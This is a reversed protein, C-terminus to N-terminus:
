SETLTWAAGTWSKGDDYDLVSSSSLVGDTYSEFNDGGQDRENLQWHTYFPYETSSLDEWGSGANMALMIDITMTGDVYDEFDDGYGFTEGNDAFAWATKWGDEANMPVFDDAEFDLQVGDVIDLYNDWPEIGDRMAIQTLTWDGDWGAGGDLTQLTPDGDTYDDWPEIFNQEAPPEPALPDVIEATPDPLDEDYCSTIIDWCIIDRDIPPCETQYVLCQNDILEAYRSIVGDSGSTNFGEDPMGIKSYVLYAGGIQFQFYEFIVPRSNWVTDRVVDAHDYNMYVAQFQCGEWGPLYSRVADDRFESKKCVTLIGVKRVDIREDGCARLKFTRVMADATGWTLKCGLPVPPEYDPLPDMQDITYWCIQGAEKWKVWTQVRNLQTYKKDVLYVAVPSACDGEFCKARVQGGFDNGRVYANSAVKEYTPIPTTILPDAGNRTWRTVGQEKTVSVVTNVIPIADYDYYLRAIPEVYYDYPQLWRNEVYSFPLKIPADDEKETQNIGLQCNHMARGSTTTGSITLEPAAVKPLEPNVVRSKQEGDAKAIRFFRLGKFGNNLKITKRLPVVGEETPLLRALIYDYWPGNESWATQLMDGETWDWALTVIDKCETDYTMDLPIAEPEVVEMDTELTATVQYLNDSHTITYTADVFAYLRTVNNPTEPDETIEKTVMWFWNEGHELSEQFFTRFTAYGEETFNWVASMVEFVEAQTRRIRQRGSEMRTTQTQSKVLHSREMLPTPLTEPWDAYTSEM